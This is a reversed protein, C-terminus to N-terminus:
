LAGANGWGSFSLRRAFLVGLYTIGGRDLMFFFCVFMLQKALFVNGFPALGVLVDVTRQVGGVWGSVGVSM